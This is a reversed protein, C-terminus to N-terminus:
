PVRGFWLLSCLGGILLVLIGAGAFLATIELEEPQMLLRRALEAYVGGFDGQQEAAYYSGLTMESIQRLTVEDLRTHVSFGELQLV